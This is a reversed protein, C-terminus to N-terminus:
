AVPTEATQAAEAAQAKAKRSARPPAQDISMCFVRVGEGNPDDKGAQTARFTVGHSEEYRPNARTINGSFNKTVAGAVHFSPVFDPNPADSLMNARKLEALQLFPFKEQRETAGNRKPPQPKHKVFAIGTQIQVETDGIVATGIVAPQSGAGIVVADGTDAAATAPAPAADFQPISTDVPAPAPAPAPAPVPAQAVEVAADAPFAAHFAAESATATATAAFTGEEEGKKRKDVKILGADKLATIEPCDGVFTPQENATNAIIQHLVSLMWVTNLQSM